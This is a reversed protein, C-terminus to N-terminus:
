VGFVSGSDDTETQSVSKDDGRASDGGSGGGIPPLGDDHENAEGGVADPPETETQEYRSARPTQEAPSRQGVLSTLLQGDRTPGRWRDTERRCRRCEHARAPTGACLHTDMALGGALIGVAPIAVGGLVEGNQIMWGGLYVSVGALVLMTAVPALHGTERLAELANWERDLDSERGEQIAAGHIREPGNSTPHIM